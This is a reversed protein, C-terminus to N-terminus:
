ENKRQKYVLLCIGTLMILCPLNAIKGQGTSPLMPSAQMNYFKVVYTNDDTQYTTEITISDESLEYGFPAQLEKLSYSELASVKWEHIGNDHRQFVPIIDGKTNSLEFRIHEDEIEELSFADCKIVRILVELRKNGIAKDLHIEPEYMGQYEFEFMEVDDNLAYGYPSEIEVLGWKKTIDLNLFDLTGDDGTEGAYLPNSDKLLQSDSFSTETIDFLGFKVGAIAQNTSEDIKLIHIFGRAKKNEFTLEQTEEHKEIKFTKLNKEKDIAYPEEVWIEELSYEGYELSEIFAEGNNTSLEEIVSGESDYLRFSAEVPDGTETDIKKIVVRGKIRENEVQGLDIIDGSILDKQIDSSEDITFSSPEMKIYCEPANVEVLQYKGYPLSKETIFVGEANTFWTDINKIQGNEDLEYSVANGKEDIIQFTVDPIPKKSDADVKTVKVRAEIAENVHHIEIIERNNRISFPVPESDIWYGKPANVEEFYYDGYILQQSEVIGNEDSMLNEQLIDSNLGVINFVAGQLPNGKSDQKLIKLKGTLLENGLQYYHRSILSEPNKSDYTLSVRHEEDTLVYASPAKTEKFYYEGLPLNDFIVKGEQDSVGTAVWQNAKYITKSGENIDEAAYLNISAGSLSQNLTEKSSSYKLIELSARQYKNEFGITSMSELKGDISTLTITKETKDLVFPKPVFLESVKYKGLPLKSSLAKGKSDTTYTGVAVNDENKVLFKAGEIPYGEPSRKDIEIQGTFVRFNVTFKIEEDLQSQLVKQSTGDSFVYSPGESNGQKKNLQIFAYDSLVRLTYKTKSIDLVEVGSSRTYLFEELLPSEFSIVDGKNVYMQDVCWNPLNGHENILRKIENIEYDPNLTGPEFEWGLADFILLQTAWRYGQTDHDPYEYGYNSILKIRNRQQNSLKFSLRGDMVRVTDIDSLDKKLAYQTHSNIVTPEICYAVNGDVFLESYGGPFDFAYTPSPRYYYSVAQSLRKGGTIQHVSRQSSTPSTSIKEKTILGTENDIVFMEDEDLYQDIESMPPISDYYETVEDAHITTITTVVTTFLVLFMIVTRRIINEIKM